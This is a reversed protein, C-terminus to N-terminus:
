QISEINSQKLNPNMRFEQQMLNRYDKDKPFSARSMPLTSIFQSHYLKKEDETGRRTTAFHCWSCRKRAAQHSALFDAIERCVQLVLTVLGWLAFRLLSPTQRFFKM